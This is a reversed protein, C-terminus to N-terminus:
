LKMLIGVTESLAMGHSAKVLVTDGPRIYTGLEKELKTKDTFAIGREGASAAILSGLEGVGLVLDVGKEAAYKGINEHIQESSEGLEFMDGLIAVRREAPVAMLQDIAARMAEPSANYTDDIIELGAKENKRFSLRNGTIQAGAMGRSAQEMTLGAQCAAAAAAAANFVNHRGAAPISFHQVTQGNRLDFEMGAAGNDTIDSVIYDNDEEEGSSILHYEGHINEPRLLDEGRSIVLIDSPSLYNTIEMKAKMINERSGFFEMHASGICTIVAIHPRALDALFDIEGYKDMGMELIGIETDEEFSLVTLPLGIHNNYNGKTCGTKYKVSCAANLLDKTTTKGVSGTVGIVNIDLERIYWAALRQLAKTTDDVLIATVNKDKVSELADSESIVINMCGSETVDGIFEHADRNAGVLAFFLTNGDVDRSDRSVRSVINESNGCLVRGNIAAATQEMTLKKM